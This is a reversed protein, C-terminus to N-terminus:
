QSNGTKGLVHTGDEISVHYAKLQIGTQRSYLEGAEEIVQAANEEKVLNITCGGFGGGMMRAGPVAPNNKVADVLIDLEPCSVEYLRSLGEHTAFMKKGFAAINGHLLDNTGALLREIEEVVFRCRSYIKPNGGSLCEEVQQLAADRLASVLPYRKKIIGTGEECENRRINYQSSALSHKVQTDLLVISYGKLDLPFYEYELSRCDLKIVHGKKGFMSAFMDMVGCKVGAFEHEAKQAILVMEKKGIGLQFLENLAFVVACEVAASSSMGAGIPVNGHLALDFGPISFGQKILQAAVGLIYDPWGRGTPSLAPLLLEHSDDFDVSYLRIIGDERKRLSVEVVKDIAAPLVFGSNYDTHEGILNIRGPSVVTIDPLKGFYGTFPQVTDPKDGTIFSNNGVM